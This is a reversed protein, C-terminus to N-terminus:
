AKPKVPIQILVPEKGEHCGPGFSEFCPATEDEQMGSAPMWERFIAFWTAGIESMGCEFVAYHAAPADRIVLGECAQADARAPKGMVFDVVGEVDTGFYYGCCPDGEGRADVDAMRPMYDNDWLGSWDATQLEVRRQVGVVRGAPVDVFKVPQM